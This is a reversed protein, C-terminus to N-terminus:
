ILPAGEVPYHINTELCFSDFFCESLDIKNEIGLAGTEGSEAASYNVLCTNLERVLEEPLAQENAQLKSKGPIRVDVWRNLKCFWQYLPALALERAFQRYSLNRYKRLVTARLAFVANQQIKRKAKASLKKPARAQEAQALWAQIVQKEAGSESLIQDIKQLLEMEIAYESNGRINDPIEKDFAAQMQIIQMATHEKERNKKHGQKKDLSIIAYRM